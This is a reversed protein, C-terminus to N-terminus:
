NKKHNTKNFISEIKIYNGNNFHFVFMQSKIVRKLPSKLLVKVMTVSYSEFSIVKFLTRHKVESLTLFQKEEHPKGSQKSLSVTVLPTQVNLRPMRDQSSM